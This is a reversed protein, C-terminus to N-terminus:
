KNIVKIKHCIKRCSKREVTGKIINIILREELEMTITDRKAKDLLILDKM